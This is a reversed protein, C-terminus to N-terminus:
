SGRGKEFIMDMVDEWARKLRAESAPSPEGEKRWLADHLASDEGIGGQSYDYWIEMWIMRKMDRLNM